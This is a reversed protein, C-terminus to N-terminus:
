RGSFGKFAATIVAIAAVLTWRLARTAAQLSHTRRDVPYADDGGLSDLMGLLLDPLRALNTEHVGRLIAVLPCRDLWTKMGM